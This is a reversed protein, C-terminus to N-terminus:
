KIVNKFRKGGQRSTVNYCSMLIVRFIAVDVGVGHRLCDRRAGSHVPCFDIKIYICMKKFKVNYM